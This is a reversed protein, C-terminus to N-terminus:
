VIKKAYLPSYRNSNANMATVGPKANYFTERTSGGGSPNWDIILSGPSTWSYTGRNLPASPSPPKSTPKTEM